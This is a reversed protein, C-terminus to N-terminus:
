CSSCGGRPASDRTTARAARARMEETYEFVARSGLPTLIEREVYVTFPMGSVRTILEGLIAYNVNRYAVREGPRRGGTTRFRALAEATGVMRDGTFHAALLATLKEPLGSAHSALQRVTVPHTLDLDPLFRTVPADLDVGGDEVLRMLATATFLKTGSFLHFVTAPTTATATGVDALGFSATERAGRHWIALVGGPAGAATLTAAVSARLDTTLM